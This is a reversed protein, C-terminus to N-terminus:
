LDLIKQIQNLTNLFAANHADVAEKKYKLDTLLSKLEYLEDDHVTTNQMGRVRGEAEAKEVLTYDIKDWYTNNNGRPM